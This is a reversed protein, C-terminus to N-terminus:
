GHARGSRHVSVLGRQKQQLGGSGVSSLSQGPAPGSAAARGTPRMQASASPAAIATPGHGTAAAHTHAAQEQLLLNAAAQSLQQPLLGLRGMLSTWLAALHVVELVAQQQLEACLPRSAWLHSHAPAAAMAAVGAATMAGEQQLLTALPPVLGTEGAPAAAGLVCHPARALLTHLVSIDHLPSMHPLYPVVERGCYVVKPVKDKLLPSLSPLLMGQKDDGAALDILYVTAPWRQSAVAGGGGGGGSALGPTAGSGAGGGGGAATVPPVYLQVLCVKGLEGTPHPQGPYQSHAPAPAPARVVKCAVAVQPASYCHQLMDLHDPTCATTVIKVELSSPSVRVSSSSSSSSGAAAAAASSAGGGAAAQAPPPSLPASAPPPSLPVRTLQQSQQPPPHAATAAGTPEAATQGAPRQALPPHNYKCAAAYRCTGTRMYYPCNSCNPRRPLADSSSTSAASSSPQHHSLSSGNTAPLSAAKAMVASTRLRVSRPGGYWTEQIEFLEPDAALLQEVDPGGPVAAMVMDTLRSLPLFGGQQTHLAKVLSVAATRRAAAAAAAAASAAATRDGGGGGGSVPFLAEVAARLAADSPPPPVGSGSSATVAPSHPPPPPPPHAERHPVAAFAAARSAAAAAATAAPAAAAEPGGRGVWVLDGGGGSRGEGRGGRAAQHGGGGGGSDPERIGAAMLLKGLNLTVFTGMEGGNRGGQHALGALGGPPLVKRFVHMVNNSSEAGVLREFGGLRTPDFVQLPLQEGLQHALTTLRVCHVRGAFPRTRTALHSAAARRIQDVPRSGSFVVAAAAALAEVVREQLAELDLVVAAGEGEEGGGGGAGWGGLGGGGGGPVLVRFCRRSPREQLRQMLAGAHWASSAAGGGSGGGGRQGSGPPAPLLQPAKQRVQEVLRTLPLRFRESPGPPTEGRRAAALGSSRGAEVLTLAVVAMLEDAPSGSSCFVARVYQHLLDSRLLMPPPRGAADGGGGGVNRASVGGSGTGRGGGWSGAHGGEGEEEGEEQEGDEGEQDFDGDGDGDEDAGEDYDDEWAAGEAESSGGGGGGWGEGQGLGSGGAAALDSDSRRAGSGAAPQSLSARQLAATAAAVDGGEDEGGDVGGQGWVAAESAVLGKGDGHEVAIAGQQQQHHQHQQHHHHQLLQHPLPPVQQQQQQPALPPQQQSEAPQTQQTQQTQLLRNFHLRVATQDPTMELRTEGGLLQSLSHYPHDRHDRLDMRSTWAAALFSEADNVPALFLDPPRMDIHQRSVIYWALQNRAWSLPSSLDWVRDIQAKLCDKGAAMLSAADLLVNGTDDSYVFCSDTSIIEALRKPLLLDFPISGHSSSLASSLEDLHLRYHQEQLLRLAAVKKIRAEMRNDRWLLNAYIHLASAM